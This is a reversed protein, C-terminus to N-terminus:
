SPEIIGEDVVIKRSLTRYGHDPFYATIRDAETRIVTGRGWQAHEIEEHARFDGPDEAADPDEATGARCVDCRGCPPTFDEGFYTLMFERRCGATEAYGRMMEVRSQEIRERAAVHETVRALVTHAKLESQVSFGKRHREITNTEALLNLAGTVRRASLGTTRRLATASRAGERVAALVATLDDDPVRAASFFRRLSLDEPRYHLVAEAPEGDRGARGIEQYYADISGPPAAHVVFRVDPKDIGMGFASTAVVVAAEGSDFAEQVRDREDRAMGAHYARAHVEEAQLAAAIQEADRRRAVYVLGTGSELAQSLEVVHEVLAARLEKATTHRRVSLELNPRDFGHAVVMPERMGLREVIEERVPPAATATLAIVVPHGLQEVVPGLALYDPRFSHGWASVCHAEDVVLLDPRLDAVAQMTADNALQEPAVFLFEAEGRSLADWAADTEQASRSSNVTVGDLSSAAHELGTVQDRQLAILPSVVVTRGPLHAAVIQYIASKGYGTPMVALVDRGSAAAEMADLQGPRLGAIGLEERALRKLSSRLSTM